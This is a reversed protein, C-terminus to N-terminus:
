FEVKNYTQFNEYLVNSFMDPKKKQAYFDYKKRRSRKEVDMETNCRNYHCTYSQKGGTEGVFKLESLLRVLSGPDGVTDGTEPM